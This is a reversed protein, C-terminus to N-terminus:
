IFKLVLTTILFAAIAVGFFIVIPVILNKNSNNEPKKQESM